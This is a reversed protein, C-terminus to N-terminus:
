KRPDTDLCELAARAASRQGPQWGAEEAMVHLHRRVEERDATSLTAWAARILEPEGSLLRSWLLEPDLTEAMRLGRDMKVSTYDFRIVIHVQDQGV